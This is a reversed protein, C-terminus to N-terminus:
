APERTLEELRSHTAQRMDWLISWEVADEDDGMEGAEFKVYFESSPMAYQSEYAALRGELRALDARAREVELTVLKAVAQDIVPNRYGERYLRLLSELRDLPESEM